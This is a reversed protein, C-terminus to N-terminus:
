TTAAPSTMTHVGAPPQRRRPPPGRQAHVRRRQEVRDGAARGKGSSGGARKFLRPWEEGLFAAADRAGNSEADPPQAVAM